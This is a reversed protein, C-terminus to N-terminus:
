QKVLTFVQDLTGVTCRLFYTGPELEKADISCYRGYIDSEMYTHRMVVGSGNFLTFKATHEQPSKFYIHIQDTFPNQLVKCYAMAKESFDALVIDSYVSSGNKDIQKLRYYNIGNIPKDDTYNYITVQNSTGAAEINALPTFNKADHSKEIQFYASGTETATIWQLAVTHDTVSATFETLAVPMILSIEDAGIEPTTASRAEYDYDTTITAYATGGNELPCGSCLSIHADNASTFYINPNISISSTEGPSVIVQFASLTTYGATGDYFIYNGSGSPVYYCNNNSSSELESINMSASKEVANTNGTGLHNSTNSFINNVLRVNNANLYLAANRFNTYSGTVDLAITNYAIYNDALSYNNHCAIGYVYQCSSGSGINFGSLMNNYCHVEEGYPLTMGILLAGSYTSNQHIDFFRNNYFKQAGTTGFSGTFLCLEFTSNYSTLSSIENNYFNLNGDFAISVYYARSVGFFNDAATCNTIINNYINVNKSSSASSICYLLQGSENDSVTNNYIYVNTAFSEHIIGGFESTLLGNICGTITNNYINHTNTSGGTVSGSTVYIGKIYGNSLLTVTNNYIDLNSNNPQTATIGYHTSTNGDGGYVTNNAIIINKQYYSRIPSTYSDGGFDTVYNGGGVGITCNIDPYTTANYGILSIGNYAGQITNAYFANNNCQGNTNNVNVALGTTGHVISQYIGITYYTNRSLTINCNKITVNSPADNNLRTLFYGFEVILTSSSGTYNELLDIGDITVYDTKFIKFFCDQTTSTGSGSSASQILPNAGSGTKQIVIPNASTATTTSLSINAATETHGASVLITTGGTSVGSTNLATIAESITAYTGPVTWTTQASAISAASICSM